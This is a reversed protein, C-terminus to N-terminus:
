RRLDQGWKEFLTQVSKIVRSKGSGGLGGLYMILQKSDVPVQNHSKTDDKMWTTLCAIAITCFAQHQKKNLSYAQSVENVSPCNGWQPNSELVPPESWQCHRLADELMGVHIQSKHYQAKTSTPDVHHHGQYTQFEIGSCVSLDLIRGFNSVVM